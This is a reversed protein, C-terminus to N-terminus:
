KKKKKPPEHKKAAPKPKPKKPGHRGGLGTQSSGAWLPIGSIPGPPSGWPVQQEIQM